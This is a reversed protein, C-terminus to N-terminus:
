KTFSPWKDCSLVGFFEKEESHYNILAFSGLNDDYRFTIKGASYDADGETNDSFNIQFLDHYIVRSVDTAIEIPHTYYNRDQNSHVYNVTIFTKRKAWETETKETNFTFTLKNFIPNGFTKQCTMKEIKYENSHVAFLSSSLLLFICIVSKKM